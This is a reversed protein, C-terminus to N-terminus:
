LKMKDLKEYIADLREIVELTDISSGSENRVELQIKLIGLEGLVGGIERAVRMRNDFAEERVKDVAREIKTEVKM